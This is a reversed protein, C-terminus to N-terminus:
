PNRLGYRYLVQNNAYFIIVLSLISIVTIGLGMFIGLYRGGRSHNLTEDFCLSFMIYMIAFLVASSIIQPVYLKLNKKLGNLATRIYFKIM